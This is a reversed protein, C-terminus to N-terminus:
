PGFRTMEPAHAHSGGSRAVIKVPAIDPNSDSPLAPSGQLRQAPAHCCGTILRMTVHASSVDEEASLSNSCNDHNALVTVLLEVATNCCQKSGREGDQYMEAVRVVQM